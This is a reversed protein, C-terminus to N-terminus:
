RDGGDATTDTPIDVKRSVVYHMPKPYPRSRAPNHRVLLTLVHEGPPLDDKPVFFMGAVNQKPPLKDTPLFEAAPVNDVYLDFFFFDESLPVSSGNEFTFAVTFGDNAPVPFELTLRLSPIENATRHLKMNIWLATGLGALIILATLFFHVVKNPHRSIM